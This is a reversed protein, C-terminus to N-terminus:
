PQSGRVRYGVGRVTEIEDSGVKRRLGSMCAEVLNPDAYPDDWVEDLLTRKTVVTGGRSMLAALLDFERATLDVGEQGVWVRRAPLDIRLEGLALVTHSQTRRLVAGVRAVLAQPSFPKTVYDDAGHELAGAEVSADDQATLMIVPTAIGARRARALVEGGDIGPLMLDLLVVDYEGTLLAHLGSTGDHVSDVRYGSRHLLETILSALRVEDEVVLVHASARHSAPPQRNSVQRDHREM